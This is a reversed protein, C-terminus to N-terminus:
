RLYINEFSNIIPIEKNIGDHNINILGTIKNNGSINNKTVEVNKEWASILSIQNIKANELGKHTIFYERCDESTIKLHLEVYSQAKDANATNTYVNGPNVTDAFTGISSVYNQVLNPTNSFTKFYSVNWQKRVM